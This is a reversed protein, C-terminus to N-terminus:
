VQMRSVEQYAELARNRVQVMLNFGLEAKTMALMAEHINQSKGSSIDSTLKDAVKQDTNVEKVSETLLDMFSKGDKKEELSKELNNQKQQIETIGKLGPSSFSTKFALGSM